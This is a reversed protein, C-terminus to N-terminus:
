GISDPEPPLRARCGNGADRRRGVGRCAGRLRARHACRAARLTTFDMAYIPGPIHVGSILLDAGEVEYIAALADGIGAGSRTSAALRLRMERAVEVDIVTNSAGTDVLVEVARGALV